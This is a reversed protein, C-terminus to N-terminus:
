RILMDIGDVTQILKDKNVEIDYCQGKEVNVYINDVNTRFYAWGKLTEENRFIVVLQPTGMGGYTVVKDVVRCKIKKLQSETKVIETKEPEPKISKNHDSSFFGM